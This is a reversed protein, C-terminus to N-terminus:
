QIVKRFRIETVGYRQGLHTEIESEESHGMKLWFWYARWPRGSRKNRSTDLTVYKKSLDKALAEVFRVLAKGIGKGQFDKAVDINDLEIAEPEVRIVVFAVVRANQEYVYVLEGDVENETRWAQELKKENAFLRQDLPPGYGAIEELTKSTLNCWVISPIDIRTAPRIM